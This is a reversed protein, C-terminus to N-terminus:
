QFNRVIISRTEGTQIIKLNNSISNAGYREFHLNDGQQLLNASVDQNANVTFDFANNDNGNQIITGDLNKADMMFSINNSDGYQFLELDSNESSTYADIKNNAGIQEIFIQNGVPIERNPESKQFNRFPLNAPMFNGFEIKENLMNEEGPNTLNQSFSNFGIFFTLLTIYFYTKM